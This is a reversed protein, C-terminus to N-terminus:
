GKLIFPFMMMIMQLSDRFKKISYLSTAYGNGETFTMSGNWAAIKELAFCGVFTSIDLTKDFSAPFTVSKLSSCNSLSM